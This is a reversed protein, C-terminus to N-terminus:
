ECDGQQALKSIKAREEKGQRDKRFAEVDDIASRLTEAYNLAGQKRLILTTETDVYGKTLL